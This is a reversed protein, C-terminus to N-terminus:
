VVIWFRSLKPDWDQWTHPRISNVCVLHPMHYLEISIFHSKNSEQRSFIIFNEQAILQTL